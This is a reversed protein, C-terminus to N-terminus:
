DHEIERETFLGAPTLPTGLLRSGRAASVDTALHCVGVLCIATM